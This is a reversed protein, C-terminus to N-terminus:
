KTPSRPSLFRRVPCCGRWGRRNWQRIRERLNLAMLPQKRVPQSLTTQSPNPATIIGRAYLVWPDCLCSGGSYQDQGVFVEDSGLGDEAVFPYAGALTASTDRHRPVRLRGASRLSASGAEGAAQLFTTAKREQREAAAKAEAAEREAKTREAQLRAAAQRRAKRATRRESTPAVLVAAHLRENEGSM